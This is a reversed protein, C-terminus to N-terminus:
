ESESGKGTIDIEFFEQFQKATKVTQAARVDDNLLATAEQDRRHALRLLLKEQETLPLPPAPSGSAQLTEVPSPKHAHVRRPLRVATTGVRSPALGFKPPHGLDRDQSRPHVPGGLLQGTDGPHRLLTVTAICLAAVATVCALRTRM